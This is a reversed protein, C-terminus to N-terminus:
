NVKIKYPSTRLMVEKIAKFYDEQVKKNSVKCYRQTNILWNHGLLEQITVAMADANLLQTAMTHRLRHCSVHIGTKRSYYEIRKQIGRVSISKGKYTGKEVLFVRETRTPPRIKMYDNLSHFADSSIFVIRDRKWKGNHVVIRKRLFDIANLTLNAVEEVRLGCRLMIMFIAKDRVNKIAQFFVEIEEDRLYRPLPKPLRLSYGKKVPNTIGLAEEYFLYNYFDRISDLYCNVTKPNLGKDLLFDIYELIKKHGVREVPVDLWIDFNKLINSYNKITHHSYNLRRLFRRYNLILDIAEM